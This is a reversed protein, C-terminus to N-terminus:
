LKAKMKRINQWNLGIVILIYKNGITQNTNDCTHSLLVPFELFKNVNPNISPASSRKAALLNWETYM